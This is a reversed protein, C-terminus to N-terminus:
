KRFVGFILAAAIGAVGVGGAVLAATPPGAPAAAPQPLAQSVPAAPAGAVPAPPMGSPPVTGPAYVPIGQSYLPPPFPQQTPMGQNPPVMGPNQVPIGAAPPTASYGLIVTGNQDVPLGASSLGVAGPIPVGNQDVPIGSSNLIATGPTTTAPPLGAGAGPVPSVPPPMPVPMPPPPAPAPPAAAAPPALPSVTGPTQSPDCPNWVGSKQWNDYTDQYDCDQNTVPNHNHSVVLAPSASTNVWTGDMGGYGDPPIPSPIPLPGPALQVAPPTTTPINPLLGAGAGQGLWLPRAKLIM